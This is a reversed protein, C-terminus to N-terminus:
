QHLFRRGHNGYGSQTRNAGCTPRAGASKIGSPVEKGSHAASIGSPRHRPSPILPTPVPRPRTGNKFVPCNHHGEPGGHLSGVGRGHCPAEAAEDRPDCRGHGGSGYVVLKAQVPGGQGQHGKSSIDSCFPDQGTGGLYSAPWRQSSLHRGTRTRLRSGSVSGRPNRCKSPSVSWHRTM